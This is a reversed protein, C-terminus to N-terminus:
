QEGHKDISQLSRCCFAWVDPHSQFLESFPKIAQGTPGFCWGLLGHDDNKKLQELLQQEPIMQTLAAQVVSTLRTFTARHGAELAERRDLQLVEVTKIGKKSWDNELLDFRATLNCTVPDFDIYRWPDEESPDILLPSDDKGLPFQSGKLRGCETCCLLLNLWDFVHEPYKSKPRFHEIDSGHSDLCYMCRQRAGMMKQLVVLVLKM